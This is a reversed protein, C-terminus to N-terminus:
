REASPGPRTELRPRTVDIDRRPRSSKPRSELEALYEELKYEHAM